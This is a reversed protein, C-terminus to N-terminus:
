SLTTAFIRSASGSAWEPDLYREREVRSATDIEEATLSSTNFEMKWTQRFGEILHDILVPYPQDLTLSSQHLFKSGIRRQSAGLIKKGNLLLDHCDPKEFCIRDKQRERMSKVDRCDAYDLSPYIKKLGVRVAENIKLYSEKVASPIQPHPMTLTLSFTLDQGHRVVGGGTLRRVVSSPRSGNRSRNDFDQVSQFYGISLANESWTYFRLTPISESKGQGLMLAEDVAMNHRADSPTDLILRFANM